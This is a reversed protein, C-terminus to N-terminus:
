DPRGGATFLRRHNKPRDGEHEVVLVDAQVSVSCWRTRGATGASWWSAPAALGRDRAADVLATLLARGVGQGRSAPNVGISLEPVDDAVYGYGPQDATLTRAWAAGLRADDEGVAVVGFDGARPWGDVYRGIHDDALVQERDFPLEGSWNFAELLMDTLFEADDATAPRIRM